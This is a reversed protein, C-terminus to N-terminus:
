KKTNMDFKQLLRWPSIHKLLSTWGFISVLHIEAIVPFSFFFNRSLIKWRFGMMFRMYQTVKIKNEDWSDFLWLIFRQDSADFM